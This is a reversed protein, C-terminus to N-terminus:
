CKKILRIMSHPFGFTDFLKFQVHFQAFSEQMTVVSLMELSQQLGLRANTSMLCM